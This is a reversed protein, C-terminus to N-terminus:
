PREDQLETRLKTRARNLYRRVTGDAIGLTVAVEGVTLDEWYTLFVVARERVSLVGFVGLEDGVIPRPALPTRGALQELRRRRTSRRWQRNAENFVSRFLYRRADVVENWDVSRLVRIMAEAVVDEADSAGVLGTAYVVLDAAHKEYAEVGRLDVM